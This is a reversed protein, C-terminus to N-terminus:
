KELQQQLAKSADLASDRAKDAVDAAVKGAENALEKSRAITNAATGKLLETSAKTGASFLEKQGVREGNLVVQEPGTDITGDERIPYSCDISGSQDNATAYAITVTRSKGHDHQDTKEWSAIQNGTLQKAVAQCMALQPNDSNTCATLLLATTMAMMSSLTRM